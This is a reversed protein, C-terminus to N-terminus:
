PKVSVTFPAFKVFSATTVQLPVACVVVKTLAVCSVAEMPAVLAANGPVTPTVTFFEAPADLENGKVREVGADSGIGDRLETEGFEAGAPLGGNVIM